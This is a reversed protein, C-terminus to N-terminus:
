YDVDVNQKHVVPMSSGSEFVSNMSLWVTKEFTMYSAAVHGGKVWFETDERDNEGHALHILFPRLILICSLFIIHTGVLTPQWHSPLCRCLVCWDQALISRLFCSILPWTMLFVLSSSETPKFFLLHFIFNCIQIKRIYNSNKILLEWFPPCSLPIASCILWRTM